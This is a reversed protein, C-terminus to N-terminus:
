QFRVTGDTNLFLIWVAGQDGGGDDDGTAGVAIDRIGDGDLDGLAAVSAGFENGADLSGFFGGAGQAILQEAKVTGVQAAPASAVALIGEGVLFALTALRPLPAVGSCRRFLRM